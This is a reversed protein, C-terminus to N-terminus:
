ETSQRRYVDTPDSILEPRKRAMVKNETALGTANLTGRARASGVGEARVRPIANGSVLAVAPRCATTDRAVRFSDTLCAIILGLDGHGPM